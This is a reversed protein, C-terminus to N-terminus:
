YSDHYIWYCTKRGSKMVLTEITEQPIDETATSPMNTEKTKSKASTKAKTKAPPKAKSKVTTKAKSKAPTKAKSKAPTKGNVNVHINSDIKEAVTTEMTEEPAAAKKKNQLKKTKKVTLTKLMELIEFMRTKKAEFNEPTLPARTGTAKPSRSNCFDFLENIARAFFATPESDLLRENTGDLRADDLSNASSGSLLQTAFLVKMKFNKCETHRKTLKNGSRFGVLEQDEVLAKFHDWKAPSNFRPIFIEQYDMLLNRVLKLMHCADLVVYVKRGSAPHNFFNKPHEADVKAGLLNVMAINAPLGDFVLACVEIDHEHTLRLSENVLNSTNAATDHATFWYGIPHQWPSDLGVVMFVLCQTAMVDDDVVGDEDVCMGIFAKLQPDWGKAKAVTMEDIVLTCRNGHKKKEIDDKIHQMVNTLHGPSCHVHALDNLITRRTPLTLTKRLNEYGSNSYFIQKLAFNKIEASYDRGRPKRPRNQVENQFLAAAMPSLIGKAKEFNRNVATLKRVKIALDKRKKMSDKLNRRLYKNQEMLKKMQLDRKNCAQVMVPKKIRRRRKETTVRKEM